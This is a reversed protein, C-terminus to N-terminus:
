APVEITPTQVSPEQFYPGFEAIVPVKTGEPVKPLWYALSILGNPAAGGEELPLEYEVFVHTSNWENETELVEYDGTELVFGNTLNTIYDQGGREWVPVRVGRDMGPAEDSKVVEGLTIGLFLFVIAVAITVGAVGNLIKTDRSANALEAHYM